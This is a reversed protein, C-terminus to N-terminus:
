KKYVLVHCPGQCDVELELAASAEDYRFAAPQGNVMVRTPAMEMAVLLRGGWKLRIGYVGPQEYGQSSVAGNANFYDVLGIAAVGHDLRVFTFIEATLPELALTVVQSRDLLFLEQDYFSYAAFREGELGRVDMPGVTDSIQHSLGLTKPQDDPHCNFVGVVGGSANHNFVKLLVEETMPDCYVCDDTPLGIGAARLVTGDPLVLKQLLGFNHEGVKDSVYVPCGAIARAAAHFAGLRHGSQFMDWDPHVFNGFWLSVMANTHIHLGHTEPRNPWFDTSTRTLTTAQASYLMDNACSMCNLVAGGFHVAGSGELAQRYHRTLAVRGGMGGAVAELAAQSDVKVGDVGARRMASHYDNYFRYVSDPDLRAVSKGFLTDIEPMHSVIGPSNRRETQTVKYQPFRAPDVGAWYGLVAHWVIFTSVGYKGKAAEVLPALGEPFKENAVLGTLVASEGALKGTMQWGDDLILLRPCVGGAAFSELGALVKEATVDKYFADWTCWGFQDVFEPVAKSTRLRATPMLRSCAAASKELLAGLDADFAIFVGAVESFTTAADATEAVVELGAASGRVCCRVPEMVLPVVLFHGGDKHRGLLVQTEEPVGGADTVVAPKMWFPEYRHCVAMRDVDVLHGFAASQRESAQGWRFSLVVGNEFPAARCTGEGPVGSLWKVNDVELHGDRM